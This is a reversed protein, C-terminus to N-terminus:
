GRCTVTFSLPIAETEGFTQYIDSTASATVMAGDVEFTLDGLQYDAQDGDTLFSLNKMDGNADPLMSLQLEWGDDLVGHSSFAGEPGVNVFKGPATNSTFCENLAFELTSGDDEFTVIATGPGEATDPTSAVPQESVTAETPATTTAVSDPEATSEAGSGCAALGFLVALVAVSLVRNDIKIM